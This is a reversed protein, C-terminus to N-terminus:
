LPPRQRERRKGLVVMVVAVVARGVARGVGVVAVVGVVRL